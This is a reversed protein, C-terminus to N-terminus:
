ISVLSSIVSNSITWAAKMSFQCFVHHCMLDRTCTQPFLKSFPAPVFVIEKTQCLPSMNGEWRKDISASDRHGQDSSMGGGHDNHNLSFSHGQVQFTGRHGQDESTCRHGQEQRITTRYPPVSGQRYPHPDNIGRSQIM